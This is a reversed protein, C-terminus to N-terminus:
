SGGGRIKELVAPLEEPGYLADRSRSGKALSVVGLQELQTMVALARPYGIGLKRRLMSISAFQSEIVLTAADVLLEDSEGVDAQGEGDTPEPALEHLSDQLMDHVTGVINETALVDIGGGALVTETGTDLPLETKGTRQGYAARLLRDLQRAKATHWPFAEVALIRATPIIDGNDVKNVIKSCNVRAVILHSSEPDDLLAANIAGLGNRDDNPLTASLTVSM